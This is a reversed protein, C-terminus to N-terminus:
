WRPEPEYALKQLVKNADGRALYTGLLAGQDEFLTIRYLKGRKDNHGPGWSGEM